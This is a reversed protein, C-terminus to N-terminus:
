ARVPMVTHRSIRDPLFRINWRIMCLQTLRSQGNEIYGQPDQYLNMRCVHLPLVGQSQQCVCARQFLDDVYYFM